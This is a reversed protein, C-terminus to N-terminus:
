QSEGKKLKQNVYNFFERDEQSLPKESEAKLIGPELLPHIAEEGQSDGPELTTYVGTLIKKILKKDLLPRLILYNLNSYNVPTTTTKNVQYWDRTERTTFERIGNSILYNYYRESLNM